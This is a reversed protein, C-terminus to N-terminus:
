PTSSLGEPMTSVGEPMTSFGEPLSSIAPSSTGQRLALGAPITCLLAIVFTASVFYLKWRKM